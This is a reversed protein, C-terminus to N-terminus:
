VTKRIPIFSFPINDPDDNKRVHVFWYVPMGLTYSLFIAVIWVIRKNKTLSKNKSIHMILTVITLLNIFCIIIHILAIVPMVKNTLAPACLVLYLIAVCFAILYLPIICTFIGLITSRLRPMFTGGKYIAILTIIAYSSM